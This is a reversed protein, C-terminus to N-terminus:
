KLLVIKKTQVFEGAQIQYLYIGASVPRGMSDTSNWVVSRFGAEQTNDLLRSLERGMMDYITLMVFAQEPLDYKITTVPNFPNPYAPHLGYTLPIQTERSRRLIIQKTGVSFEVVQVGACQTVNGSGDVIEWAEENRIDFELILPEGGDMVEIVCDDLRCVKTDGSFRIDNGGMPPKPPLSYSLNMEKSVEAGFYLTTRNMKLTSAASFLECDFTTSKRGLVSNPIIITGSDSARMWYSKGPVLSEANVYGGDYVYFTNPVIIGEPDIISTVPIETASGSILNWNTMLNLELQPVVFGAITSVGSNYFRLWYGSGPIMNQDSIYGQGFRFLTGGVADPFLFQYNTNEVLLPVGVMNWDENYNIDLTLYQGVNIYDTKTISDTDGEFYVTLTVAYTGSESYIWVPDRDYSDIIGDSEFDWEWELPDGTSLDTFYVELPVNGEVVDATFDAIDGLQIPYFLQSESWDSWLLNQDRYRVRWEYYHSSQLTGGPIDLRRLDIGENLDIPTFDPPGTDYYVNEWDRKSDIIAQSWLDDEEKVQFHSSMIDHEGIFHSAVLRGDVDASNENPYLTEPTEPPPANRERFWTDFVVNDMQVDSNGLGYATATYSNNECDVDFVAYGHYDHSRHIEPYETQNSYMRWRDLHGGGGGFCMLRLNGEMPAGREFAHTHGYSLHEVKDYSSLLPIVQNQVWWTNGDPWVETRGPHHLSAFIFKVADDSQATELLDELWNIQTTGQVNSNLGIFLVPGVYFSFYREGETGGIDEYKLYNYFTPAEMEHNGAVTMFPLHDSVPSIPNFFMNTYQGVNHGNDVIDGSLMALHVEQYYDEGWRNVFTERMSEVISSHVGPNSQSDSYIAFRVHSLTDSYPHHTQFLQTSSELSDSVVKYYYDTDPQLGDMKVWHWYLNESFAHYSGTATEGLEETLGYEVISEESGESHWCIYISNPTPTQIFPSMFPSPPPEFEHGYGGISEIEDSSLDRDFIAVMGVDIPNDDGDNDAFFLVQNADNAPYLSFRGEFGQAGGNHLLQGDLYYNYHVGLNVSITLRYWEGPVLSYMSYGTDSVGVNGQPDIFADGDNSNPWNTQYITYWQNLQPIKIDMVITFINVWQPNSYYGNAEIDHYCRYFSGLGINVAGDGEEPGETPTHSGVLVLDNGVSANELDNPDDFSWYGVLGGPFGSYVLEANLVNDGESIEFGDLNYDLYGDKTITVDYVGTWIESIEYYGNDDTLASVAGFNVDSGPIPEMTEQDVVTGSVFADPEIRYFHIALGEEPYSTPNYDLSVMLGTTGDSNEIGITEGNIDIGNNFDLYQFFIESDEMLIVQASITGSGGYERVNVFSCVWSNEVQGYEIIGGSAPNLDDWFFAILNNPVGQDPITSNNYETNGIGFSVSGNSNIYVQSYTEGYFTFDFPLQIPGRYDDDGMNTITEGDFNIYNFQPGDPENSDIFVYGYSDPGGSHRLDRPIWGPHPNHEGKVPQHLHKEHEPGLNNHALLGIFGPFLLIWFSKKWDGM